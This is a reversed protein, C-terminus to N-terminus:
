GHVLLVSIRYFCFSLISFICAALFFFMDMMGEFQNHLAERQDIFVPGLSEHIPRDSGLLCFLFGEKAELIPMDM